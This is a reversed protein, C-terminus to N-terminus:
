ALIWSCIVATVVAIFVNIAAGERAMRAIPVRGTAYIIANPATAVPLMFACSCAIAAPAMLLEPPLGRSTAVAALVPMLLNATATNSTIETFFTVAMCIALITLFPNDGILDGLREGILDSLGSERFASAICIGGAFLLLMGWPIDNATEWDLLAGGKGNPTLFMVIVAAVAVTSDGALEFGFAGSWGGFPEVRFIWALIALGFVIMVRREDTRWPGPAPLEPAAVGGLGRTLWIAMLPVGVIVVPLGIKMWQVFTFEGGTARQYADLFILNPPTGILTGVGGLSAAFAIGMFLPASLKDTDLSTRQVISLAMTTLMLTTASNSIWMSLIAAAAMFGFVLSRGSPGTLSIMGIALREHLGCKELSKSLMFSAMLLVIVYSGLAAAAQRQDLVGVLPFLAFPALSAAPIPMAETIWWAATLVTVGITSAIKPDLGAALSASWAAFAIAIGAAIRFPKLM